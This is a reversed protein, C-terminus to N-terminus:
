RRAVQGTSVTPGFACASFQAVCHCPIEFRAYRPVRQAVLMLVLNGGVLVLLVAISRPGLELSFGDLNAFLVAVGALAATVIWSLASRLSM